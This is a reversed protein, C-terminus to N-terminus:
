FVIAKVKCKDPQAVAAVSLFAVDPQILLEPSIHLICLLCSQIHANVEERLGDIFLLGQFLCVKDQFIQLSICKLKRNYVIRFADQVVLCSCVIYGAFLKCFIRFYEARGDCIGSIIRHDIGIHEPFCKFQIQLLERFIREPVRIILGAGLRRIM